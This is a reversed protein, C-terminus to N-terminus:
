VDFRVFAKKEIIKPMYGITSNPFIKVNKRSEHNVKPLLDPDFTPSLQLYEPIASNLKDIFLRKQRSELWAKYDNEFDLINGILPKLFHIVCRNIFIYQMPTEISFSRYKRLTQVAHQIPFRTTPGRMMRCIGLEIAVLISARSIGYHDHVITPTNCNRALRLLRLPLELNSSNNMDCQWHELSTSNGDTHTIRLRIVTFFPDSFNDIEVCQITLCGYIRNEYPRKPYYDFCRKEDNKGILMFIYKAGSQFTMKWFDQVTSKMPAQTIIFTNFLIEDDVINAHIFPLNCGIGFKDDVIDDSFMSENIKFMTGVNCQIRSNRIKTSLNSTKAPQYVVHNVESDMIEFRREMGGVISEAYMPRKTANFIHKGLNINNYYKGRLRVYVRDKEVSQKFLGARRLIQTRNCELSLYSRLKANDFVNREYDNLTGLLWLSPKSQEVMLQRILKCRCESLKMNETFFIHVDELPKGSATFFKQAVRKLPTM